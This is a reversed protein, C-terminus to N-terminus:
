HGFQPSPRFAARSQTQTQEAIALRAAQAGGTTFRYYRRRPRGQSEHREPEEWFSELVGARELRALIPHLTGSKLGVELGIDRGWRPTAPRALLARLVEVTQPTLRPLDVM